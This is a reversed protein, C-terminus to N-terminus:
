VPEKYYRAIISVLVYGQDITTQGPNISDVGQVAPNSVGDKYGFSLLM